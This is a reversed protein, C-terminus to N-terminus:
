RTEPGRDLGPFGYVKALSKSTKIYLIGSLTMKSRFFDKQFNKFKKKSKPIEGDAM